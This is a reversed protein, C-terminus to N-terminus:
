AVLSHEFEVAALVHCRQVGYRAAVVSSDQHNAQFSAALIGTAVGVKEVIPKGLCIMPDLVVQDAAFWKRALRTASDYDIRNLFPLLIEVFVRQRSLVAIMEETGRSRIAAASKFRSVFSQLM